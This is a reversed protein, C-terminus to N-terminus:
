QAKLFYFQALFFLRFAESFGGNADWSVDDDIVLDAFLLPLVLVDQPVCFRQRFNSALVGRPLCFLSLCICVLVDQQPLCYLLLFICMDQPLCFLPLFICM